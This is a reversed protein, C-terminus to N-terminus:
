WCIGDYAQLGETARAAWVLDIIVQGPKRKEFVAPFSDHDTGIVITDAHEVITDLDPVLLASVHPIQHLLFERNAGVLAALSVVPDHIRVEYGKGILREVITIMPSERVDDTGGKFALGLVGIRHGGAGVIMEVAQDIHRDNSRLIAELIPVELDLARAQHRLARVDKPLCSGGIAQGPRLYASSINLKTDARFHEMVERGDLGLAKCIRGIENAFGVKLAHWSNDVYKLMEATFVDTAILPAPVAAYLSAVLERSRADDAGVVTKPPHDYDSLASGERLFEPNACVGFDFGARKGSATELAPIVTRATTGPLVTSRLSVVYFGDRVRLCAGIEEMVRRVHSLDIDGNPQSPTGVAVIALDSNLVARKCESTAIIRGSAVGEAILRDVGAEILPPIGQNVLDVKTTNPDVGFVVHGDRALCAASVTGVYGLGFVAIRM